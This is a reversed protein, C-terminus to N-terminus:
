HIHSVDLSSAKFHLYISLHDVEADYTIDQQDHTGYSHISHHSHCKEERQLIEQELNM